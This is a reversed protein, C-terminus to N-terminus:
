ARRAPTLAHHHYFNAPYLYLSPWLTKTQIAVRHLRANERLDHAFLIENDIGIKNKVKSSIKGNSLNFEDHNVVDHITPNLVESNLNKGTVRTALKPHYDWKLDNCDKCAVLLNSPRDPDANITKYYAKPEYHEVDCVDQSLFCYPCYRFIQNEYLWQEYRYRGKKKKNKSLFPKTRLWKAM